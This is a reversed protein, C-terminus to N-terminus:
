TKKFKVMGGKPIRRIQLKWASTLFSWNLSNICMRSQLLNSMLELCVLHFNFSVLCFISASFCGSTPLHVEIRVFDDCCTILHNSLNSFAQTIQWWISAVLQFHWSSFWFHCLRCMSAFLFLRPFASCPFGHLWLPFFFLNPGL